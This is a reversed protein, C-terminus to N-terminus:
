YKYGKVEEDSFEVGLGVAVRNVFNFYSTILNIDLIDEDVFGVKRLKEIDKKRTKYPEKTLISVYDLMSKEKKSLDAKKYDKLLMTIRKRDKWYFNLAEAHHNICYKCNNLSSVFVAIIEREERSLNSKNFMISLYFEMHKKMAKPNLSHIRMINSLKGRKKSIEDYIKKLEGDAHKEDIIKIWSMTFGM